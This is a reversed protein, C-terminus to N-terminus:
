EYLGNDMGARLAPVEKRRETLKNAYFKGSEFAFGCMFVPLILWWYVLSGVADAFLPEDSRKRVIVFAAVTGLLWIFILLMM